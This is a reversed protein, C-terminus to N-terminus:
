RRKAGIRAAATNPLAIMIAMVKHICFNPSFQVLFGLPKQVRKSFVVMVCIVPPHRQPLMRYVIFDSGASTAWHWQLFQWFCDPEANETLMM